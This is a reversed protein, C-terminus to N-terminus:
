RAAWVILGLGVAIVTTVIFLSRLGFRRPALIIITFAILLGGLYPAFNDFHNSLVLAVFIWGLIMPFAAFLLEGIRLKRHNM